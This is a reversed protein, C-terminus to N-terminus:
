LLRLLAADIGRTEDRLQDVTRLGAAELQGQMYGLWRNCRFVQAARDEPTDMVSVLMMAVQRVMWSLHAADRLMSANRTILADYEALLAHPDM